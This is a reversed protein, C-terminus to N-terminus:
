KTRNIETTIRETDNRGPKKKKKDIKVKKNIKCFKKKMEKNSMGEGDIM